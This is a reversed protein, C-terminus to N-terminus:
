TRNEKSIGSGTELARLPLTIRVTTGGGPTTEINLDHPPGAGRLRERVSHLGFGNGSPTVGPEFGPGDDRVELILRDGERRASIIITGGQNQASVGHRVANEVVPQLLLSPVLLAELGPEIREEVQLRKGFRVREIDLYSRLFELEEGLRAFERDSARLTYRFVEALRTITDEAAAPQERVLAAITNLANFLFHPHVQARLARLEAEALEARLREIAGAREVAQRHYSIASIIGGIMATFLLSFMGVIAMSRASGMFGPMLTFHIILAATYSGILAAVAYYIPIQWGRGTEECRQRPIVFSELVWMCLSIVFGFVMSLLYAYGYSAWGRDGFLTGFFLATPISWLPTRWTITWLQQLANRKPRTKLHPREM